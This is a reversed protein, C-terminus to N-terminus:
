VGKQRTVRRPGQPHDSSPTTHPSAMTPMSCSILGRLSLVDSELAAEAAVLEAILSADHFGLQWLLRDLICPLSAEQDMGYADANSTRLALECYHRGRLYAAENLRAGTYRNILKVSIEAVKGLVYQPPEVPRVVLTDFFDLSVVPRTVERHVMATLETVTSASHLGASIRAWQIKASPLVWDSFRSLSSKGESTNQENLHAATKRATHRSSAPDTV